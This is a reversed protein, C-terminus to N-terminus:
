AFARAGLLAERFRNKIHTGDRLPFRLPPRSTTVKIVAIVPAAARAIRDIWADLEARTYITEAIEFNSGRAVAALDVGRATHSAQMGTEGYSQNDLVAIALNGPRHAGITALSGMGMLMDGDGTIVLVGRDPQALALGLGLMATGGMAGWMYFNLPSDGAAFVDFTPSGLGSVVLANGRHELLRATVDRRDLTISQQATM